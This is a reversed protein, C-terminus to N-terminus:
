PLVTVTLLQFLPKKFHGVSSFVLGVELEKCWGACFARM